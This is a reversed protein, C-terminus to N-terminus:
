KHQLLLQRLSQTALSDETLFIVKGGCKAADLLPGGKKDCTLVFSYFSSVAVSADTQNGTLGSGKISKGLIFDQTKKREYWARDQDSQFTGHGFGAYTPPTSAPNAEAFGFVASTKVQNRALSDRIYQKLPRKDQGGKGTEPIADLEIEVERTIFIVFEESPLELNIDISRDFLYNWANSDILVSHTM